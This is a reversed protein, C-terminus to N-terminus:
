QAGGERRPGNRRQGHRQERLAELQERQEATLVSSVQEQSAERISRLETRQDESLDLERFARRGRHESNELITQQEATLVSQMQARSNQFIAEIDSRQADSLNLEEAMRELRDGSRNGEQAHASQTLGVPAALLAFAALGCFSAAKFNFSQFFNM